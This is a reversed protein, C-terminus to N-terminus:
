QDYSVSESSYRRVSTTSRAWCILSRTVLKKVFVRQDRDNRIILYVHARGTPAALLSIFFITANPRAPTPTIANVPTTANREMAAFSPANAVSTEGLAAFTRWSFISAM